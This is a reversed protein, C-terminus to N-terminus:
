KYLISWFDPFQFYGDSNQRINMAQSLNATDYGATKQPQWNKSSCLLSFFCYAAPSDKASYAMGLPTWPCLGLVNQSNQMRFLEFCHKRPEHVTMHRNKFSNIKVSKLTQPNSNPIGFWIVSKLISRSATDLYLYWIQCLHGQYFTVSHQM